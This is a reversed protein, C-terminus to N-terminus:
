VGSSDRDDSNGGSRHMGMLGRRPLPAQRGGRTGTRGTPRRRWRRGGDDELGRRWGCSVGGSVRARIKGGVQGICGWSRVVLFLLRGGVARGQAGPRGGGGDGAATTRSAGGGGVVSEAAVSRRQRREKAAVCSRAETEAGEIRRRATRAEAETSRKEAAAEGGGGSREGQLEEGDSSM